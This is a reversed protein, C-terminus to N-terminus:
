SREKQRSRDKALMTPQWPKMVAMTTFSHSREELGHFTAFNVSIPRDSRSREWIMMIRSASPYPLGDLLIPKIASFIATSAGIGLALILISTCAFGPSRRLQRFAYRVDAGFSHLGLAADAATASEKVVVPNGFRLLANRHAEEHSMGAVRNDEVRMELHSRLEEDIERDVKTRAMLNAIRRTLSM